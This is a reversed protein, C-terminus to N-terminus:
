LGAIPGVYAILRGTVIAGFWCVLSVWALTKAGAPIQGREIEASQFVQRKIRAMVYVGGFVLVLKAYFDPNIGRTAADASFLGLGTFLNIVFGFWILPYLRELPKIPAKPWV